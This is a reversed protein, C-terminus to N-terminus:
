KSDLDAKKRALWICGWACLLGLAMIIAAILDELM